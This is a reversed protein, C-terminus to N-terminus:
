EWLYLLAKVCKSDTLWIKWKDATFLCIASALLLLLTFGARVPSWLMGFTNLLIFGATFSFLFVAILQNPGSQLEKRLTRIMRGCLSEGFCRSIFAAFRGAFADLLNGSRALTRYTVSKEAGSGRTLYWDIARRTASFSYYRCIASVARMVTSENYARLLLAATRFIMSGELWKKM